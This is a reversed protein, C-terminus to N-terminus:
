NQKPYAKAIHQYFDICFKLLSIEVPCIDINISLTSSGLFTKETANHKPFFSASVKSVTSM